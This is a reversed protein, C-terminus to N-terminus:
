LYQCNIFILASYKKTGVTRGWWGDSIGHASTRILDLLFTGETFDVVILLLEQLGGDRGDFATECLVAEIVDIRTLVALAGHDHAQLVAEHHEVFTLLHGDDVQIVFDDGLDFVELALQDVRERCQEFSAGAVNRCWAFDHLLDKVREMVPLVAEHRAPFLIHSDFEGHRGSREAARCYLRPM